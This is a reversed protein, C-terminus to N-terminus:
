VEKVTPTSSSAPSQSLSQSRADRTQPSKPSRANQRNTRLMTRPELLTPTTEHKACDEAEAPVTVQISTLSVNTDPAAQCSTRNRQEWESMFPLQQRKEAPLGSPEDGPLHRLLNEGGSDCPMSPSFQQGLKNVSATLQASHSSISSAMTEAGGPVVGASPGAGGSKRLQEGKNNVSATLSAIADHVDHFSSENRRFSSNMEEKMSDVEAVLSKLTALSAFDQQITTDTIVRHLRRKIFYTVQKRMVQVFEAAGLAGNANALAGHETITDFDMKTMYIQCTALGRTDGSEDFTVGLKAFGNIINECTLEDHAGESKLLRQFIEALTCCLSEQDIYERALLFLMPDLVNGISDQVMKKERIIAQEREKGRETESVFNDLLVAVSVQLLTWNVVLIFSFVFAGTGWDVQGSEKDLVDM